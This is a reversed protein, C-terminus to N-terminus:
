NKWQHDRHRKWNRNRWDRRMSYDWRIHDELSRTQRSRRYGIGFEVCDEDYALFANDAIQRSVPPRERDWNYRRRKGTRPVPGKRFEDDNYDNFFVKGRWVRHSPKSNKERRIRSFNALVHYASIKRGCDDRFVIEGYFTACLLRVRSEPDKVKPHLNFARLMVMNRDMDFHFDGNSMFGSSHSWGRRYAGEYFSFHHGFTSLVAEFSPFIAGTPCKLLYVGRAEYFISVAGQYNHHGQSM